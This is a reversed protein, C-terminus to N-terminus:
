ETLLGLGGIPRPSRYGSQLSSQSRIFISTTWCYPNIPGPGNFDVQFFGDDRLLQCIRPTRDSNDLIIMGGDSLHEIAAMACPHRWAGDVAIVDFQNGCTTLAQVYTSETNALIIRQNPAAKAVVSSYWDASNEVSVVIRAREAWFSSSSGAGFEFVTKNSLDFCELYEICSYTYWPLPSGTRDIPTQTRVSHWYGRGVIMTRLARFVRRATAIPGCRQISGSSSPFTKLDLGEQTHPFRALAM